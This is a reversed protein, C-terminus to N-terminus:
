KFNECLEVVVHYLTKTKKTASAWTTGISTLM